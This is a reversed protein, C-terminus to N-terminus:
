SRSSGEREMELVSSDLSMRLPLVTIHPVAFLM